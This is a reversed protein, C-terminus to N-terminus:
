LIWKYKLIKLFEEQSKCKLIKDDLCWCYQNNSYYIAPGDERHLKGNFYYSKFGDMMEIAPGDERHLLYNKYYRKTGLSNIEIGDKINNINM